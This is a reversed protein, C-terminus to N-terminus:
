RRGISETQVLRFIKENSLPNLSHTDKEQDM